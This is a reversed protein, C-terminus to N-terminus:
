DFHLDNIFHQDPTIEEEPRQLLESLVRRVTPWFEQAQTDLRRALYECWAQGTLMETPDIDAPIEIGYADEIKM